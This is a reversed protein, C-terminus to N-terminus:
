AHYTVSALNSEIHSNKTKRLLEASTNKRRHYPEDDSLLQTDFRGFYTIWPRPTMDWLLPYRFAKVSRIVHTETSLAMTFCLTATSISFSQEIKYQLSLCFDLHWNSLLNSFIIIRQIHKSITCIETCSVFFYLREAYKEGLVIKVCCKGNCM